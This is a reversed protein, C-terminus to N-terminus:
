IGEPLLATAPGEDALDRDISRLLEDDARDAATLSAVEAPRPTAPRSSRQGLITVGAVLVVAAAVSGFALLPRKLVTKQFRRPFPAVKPVPESVREMVARTQADWFDDPLSDVAGEIAGRHLLYGERLHAIRKLCEVCTALHLPVPAPGHDSPFVRELIEDETLHRGSM